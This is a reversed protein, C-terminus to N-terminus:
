KKITKLIGEKITKYDFHCHTYNEDKSGSIGFDNVTFLHDEDEVFQQWGFSSGAEIVYTNINKPILM